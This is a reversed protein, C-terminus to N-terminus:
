QPEAKVVDGVDEHQGVAHCPMGIHGAVHQAVAQGQADRREVVAEAGYVIVDRQHHHIDDDEGQEVEVQGEARQLGHREVQGLRDYPLDLLRGRGFLHGLGLLLVEVLGVEQAELAYLQPHLVVLLLPLVVGEPTVAQALGHADVAVQHQLAHAALAEVVRVLVDVGEADLFQLAHHATALGGRERVAAVCAEAGDLGHAGAELPALAAGDVLPEPLLDVLPAPLSAM